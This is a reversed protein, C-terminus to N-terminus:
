PCENEPPYVLSYKALYWGMLMELKEIDYVYGWVAV